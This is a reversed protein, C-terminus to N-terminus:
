TLQAGVEEEIAGYCYKSNNIPVEICYDLLHVTHHQPMVCPQKRLMSVSCHSDEM